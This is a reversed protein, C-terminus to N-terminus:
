SGKQIKARWYDLIDRLSQALPIQPTWGTQARFKKPDSYIIPTDSPRLRAPDQRVQIHRASLQVLADVIEQISHVGGSGINYAAGPEGRELALAYARAMDRVDVFDRQAGLNGVILAPARAGAEIDAIQKAFNATVFQENQRPGIHNTPRVRVIPLHHSLFYQLGLYDQAIKSVAYPSDPRLPSEETLPMQEPAVRGFEDISGIVLIRPARQSQAVAHLINIQARINIELTAWPDQYSAPAFAQGALHFIRDPQARTLLEHAARPDTLNGELITARGALHAINDCNGFVGGYLETDPLTLLYDALHSGAFGNM